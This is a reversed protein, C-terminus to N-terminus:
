PQCQRQHQVGSQVRVRTAEIELNAPHTPRYAFAPAGGPNSPYSHVLSPSAVDCSSRRAARIELHISRNSQVQGSVFFVGNRISFGGRSEFAPMRGFSPAVGFSISRVRIAAFATPANPGHRTRLRRPSDRTPQEHHSKKGQGTKKKRKRENIHRGRGRGGDGERTKLALLRSAHGTGTKGVSVTRMSGGGGKRGGRKGKEKEGKRVGTRRCFGHDGRIPKDSLDSERETEGKGKTYKSKGPSEPPSHFSHYM